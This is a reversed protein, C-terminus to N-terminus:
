IWKEKANYLIWKLEELKAQYRNIQRWYSKAYFNDETERYQKEWYKIQEKVFETEKDIIDKDIEIIQM